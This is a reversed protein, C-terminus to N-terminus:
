FHGTLSMPLRCSVEFELFLTLKPVLLSVSLTAMRM